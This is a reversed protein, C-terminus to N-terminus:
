IIIKMKVIIEWEIEILVSGIINLKVYKGLCETFKSYM